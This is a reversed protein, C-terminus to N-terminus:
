VFRHGCNDCFKADPDNLEQCGPCPKSKGLAQGCESCFKADDPVLANCKHCRVMTQAGGGFGGERLGQGLASAMTRVGESTGDSIYNFTDKAVPAMEQAQYRAVRGMFGFMTMVSGIFLLPMGIFAFLISFPGVAFIGACGIVICLLGLTLLIPGVTRLVGRARSHDPDLQRETV